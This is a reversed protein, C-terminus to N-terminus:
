GSLRGNVKSPEGNEDLMNEYKQIIDNLQDSNDLDFSGQLDDNKEKKTISGRKKQM